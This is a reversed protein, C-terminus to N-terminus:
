ILLPVFNLYLSNFCVTAYLEALSFRCCAGVVCMVYCLSTTRADPLLWHCTLASSFIKARKGDVRTRAQGSANVDEDWLQVFILM